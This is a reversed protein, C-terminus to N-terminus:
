KVGTWQQFMQLAIGVLVRRLNGHPKFGGKFCDAWTAQGISMEYDYNAQIEAIEAQIFESEAPQGRVRVLADIADQKRGM